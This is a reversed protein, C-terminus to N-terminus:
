FWLNKQAKTDDDDEHRVLWIRVQFTLQSLEASLFRRDIGWADQVALDGCRPRWM